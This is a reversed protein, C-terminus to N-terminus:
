ESKEELAVSTRSIQCDCIRLRGQYPPTSFDLTNSACQRTWVTRPLRPATHVCTTHQSKSGMLTLRQRREPRKTGLVCCLGDPVVNILIKWHWVCLVTNHAGLFSRSQSTDTTIPGVSNETSHGYHNRAPERLPQFSFSSVLRPKCHFADLSSRGRAHRTGAYSTVSSVEESSV